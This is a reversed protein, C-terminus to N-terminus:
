YLSRPSDVPMAYSPGRQSSCPDLRGISLELDAKRKLLVSLNQRKLKRRTDGDQIEYEAHSYSASIAAEVQALEARLKELAAQPDNCNLM